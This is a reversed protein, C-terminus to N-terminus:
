PTSQYMYSCSMRYGLTWGHEQLLIEVVDISDIGTNGFFVVKKQCAHAKRQSGGVGLKLTSNCRRASQYWFPHKKRAGTAIVVPSAVNLNPTRPALRVLELLQLHDNKESVGTAYDNGNNTQLLSTTDIEM